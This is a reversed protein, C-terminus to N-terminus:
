TMWPGEEVPKCCPCHRPCYWGARALPLHAVEPVQDCHNCRIRLVRRGLCNRSSPRIGQDATIGTNM